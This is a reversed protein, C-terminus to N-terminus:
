TAARREVRPGSPGFRDSAPSRVSFIWTTPSRDGLPNVTWASVQALAMDMPVVQAYRDMRKLASALTEPDGTLESGVRDAASERGNSVTFRLVQATLSLLFAVIMGPPDERGRRDHVLSLEALIYVGSAMSGAISTGLTDRRCIHALEHALVARVEAPELLSVLGETVVIAAHRSSRGVAFANPQPIPVVYLQPSPIGAKRSLQGLVTPLATSSHAAVPQAGTSRIVLRASLCWLGAMVTVGLSLSLLVGKQGWLIGSCAVTTGGVAGLVVASRTTNEIAARGPRPRSLESDPGV